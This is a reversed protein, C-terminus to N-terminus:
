LLIFIATRDRSSTGFWLLFVKRPLAPGDVGEGWLLLLNVILCAVKSDFAEHLLFFVGARKAAIGEIKAECARNVFGQDM